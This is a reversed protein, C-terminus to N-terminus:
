TIDMPNGGERSRRCGEGVGGDSPVNSKLHRTLKGGAGNCEALSAPVVPHTPSGQRSLSLTYTSREGKAESM